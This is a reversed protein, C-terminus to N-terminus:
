QIESEANVFVSYSAAEFTENGDLTKAIVSITYVGDVDVARALDFSVDVTSGDETNWERAILLRYDEPQEYFFGPPLPKLVVAVLEGGSYSLSHKNQEYLEPTPIVDYYVAINDVIGADFLGSIRASGGNINIDLGYNNEFNQVLALYYKDYYIGISVDTRFKNLINDRHGDDCCETDNYMMEYQLEELTVLPDIIECDYRTSQTCLDYQAKSFGAIAVNQGMSGKGGYKSYTMYPKEGNSMWHSIQKNRFVDEAHIQAASNSGLKVPELGFSARDRNILELMHNVLEEQPVAKPEQRFPPLISIAPPESEMSLLSPLVPALLVLGMVAAAAALM